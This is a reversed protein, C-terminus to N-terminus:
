DQKAKSLRKEALVGVVAGLMCLPAPGVGAKILGLFLIAAAAIFIGIDMSRKATKLREDYDVAPAPTEDFVNDVDDDYSRKGRYEEDAKAPVPAVEEEEETVEEEEEEEQERKEVKAGLVMTSDDTIILKSEDIEEESEDDEGDSEGDSDEVEIDPAACECSVPHRFAWTLVGKKKRDATAVNRLTTADMLNIGSLKAIQGEATGIDPLVPVFMDDLKLEKDGHVPNLLDSDASVFQSSTFADSAAAAAADRTDQAAESTDAASTEASSSEASSTTEVEASSATKGGRFMLDGVRKFNAADSRV